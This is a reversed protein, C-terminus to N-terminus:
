EVAQRGLEKAVKGDIRHEALDALTFSNFADKIRNNILVYLSRCECGDLFICQEPSMVCEVINIPGITAEIIEGLMIEEAPRTLLHGGKKGSVGKLLGANKLSIAVQELYRRSIKIRAAVEGLHVPTGDKTERAVVMMARLGYRARTTLKM